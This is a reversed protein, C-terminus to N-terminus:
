SRINHIDKLTVVKNYKAAVFDKMQKVGPNLALLDQVDKLQDEELRRNIAYFKAMKPNLDHNHTTNSKTVVLFGKSYSLGIV